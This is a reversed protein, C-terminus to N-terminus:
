GQGQDHTTSSYSTACKVTCSSVAHDLQIDYETDLKDLGQFLWPFQKPIDKKLDGVSKM